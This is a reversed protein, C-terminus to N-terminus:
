QSLWVWCCNAGPSPPWIWQECHINFFADCMIMRISATTIIREAESAVSSVSDSYAQQHTCDSGNSMISFDEAAYNPADNRKDIRWMVVNLGWCIHNSVRESHFRYCFSIQGLEYFHDTWDTIGRASKSVHSFWLTVHCYRHIQVVMVVILTPVALRDERSLHGSDLSFGQRSSILVGSDNRPSRRM